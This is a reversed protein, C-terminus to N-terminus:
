RGIDDTIQPPNFNIETQIYKDIIDFNTKYNDPIASYGTGDPGLPIPTNIPTPEPLRTLPPDSKRVTTVILSIILLCFTIVGLIIAFKIKPDKIFAKKTNDTINTDQTQIPALPNQSNPDPNQYGSETNM